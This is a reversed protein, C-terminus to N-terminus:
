KAEKARGGVVKRRSVPGGVETTMEAGGLNGSEDSPTLSTDSPEPGKLKEGEKALDVPGLQKDDVKEMKGDWADAGALFEAQADPQMRDFFKQADEVTKQPYGNFQLFKVHKETLPEEFAAAQSGGKAAAASQAATVLEMINGDALGWTFLEDGRIWDPCNTVVGPQVDFTHENQKKVSTMNHLAKAADLATRQAAEDPTEGPKPKSISGEGYHKTFRFAQKTLIRIM